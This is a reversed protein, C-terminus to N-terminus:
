NDCIETTKALYKEALKSSDREFIDFGVSKRIEIIRFEQETCFELALENEKTNTTINNLDTTVQHINSIIKDLRFDYKQLKTNDKEIM